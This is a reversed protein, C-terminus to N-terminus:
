GLDSPSINDKIVQLTTEVLPSVDEFSFIAKFNHNLEEWDM